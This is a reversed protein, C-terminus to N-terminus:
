KKAWPNGGRVISHVQSNTVEPLARSSLKYNYIDLIGMRAAPRILGGLSGTKNVGGTGLSALGYATIRNIVVQAENSKLAEVLRARRYLPHKAYLFDFGVIGSLLYTHWRKVDNPWAEMATKLAFELGEAGWARTIARLVGVNQLSTLSRNHTMSVTLGLKNVVGAVALANPDGAVLQSRFLDNAGLRTREVNLDVFREAEEYVSLGESILCPLETIGAEKAALVRHQGDMVAYTGNGRHSVEIVGAMQPRWNAAMAAVKKKSPASLHRQYLPDILLASTPLLQYTEM